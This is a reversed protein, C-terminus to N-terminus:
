VYMQIVRLCDAPTLLDAGTDPAKSGFFLVRPVAEEIRLSYGFGPNLPDILCFQVYLHKM